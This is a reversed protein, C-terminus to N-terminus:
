FECGNNFYKEAIYKWANQMKEIEGINQCGRAGCHAVGYVTIEPKLPFPAEFPKGDSLRICFGKAIEGSVMEYTMKGLCIIIKPKIALVLDDFIEKEKKMLKKTMGGTESSNPCRYGLSYNTFFIRMGPDKKTIDVGDGFAKFLCALNKDTPSANVDYQIADNGAQISGIRDIVCANKGASPCGWDQGVLLIDVGKEDINKLQYGQWYTWLNIQDGKLWVDCPEFLIKDGYSTRRADQAKKVVEKYKLPHM